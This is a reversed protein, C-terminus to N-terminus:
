ENGVEQLLQIFRQKQWEREDYYRTAARAYWTADWSAAWADPWATARAALAASWTNRWADIDVRSAADWAAALQEKTAEGNAFLRSIRITERPRNDKPHEKEYLPLVREACDCAFLRIERDAPEIVISLAWIADALGCVELVEDLGFPTDKGWKRIGGKYRAFKLYSSRCAKNERARAFTTHLM